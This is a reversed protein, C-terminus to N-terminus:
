RQKHAIKCIIAVIGAIFIIIGSFAIAEALILTWGLLSIVDIITYILMLAAGVTLLASIVCAIYVLVRIALCWGDSKAFKCLEIQAWLIMVAIITIIACSLIGM